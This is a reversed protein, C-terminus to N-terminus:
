LTDCNIQVCQLTYKLTYEKQISLQHCQRLAIVECIHLYKCLVDYMFRTLKVCVRTYRLYNNTEYLNM